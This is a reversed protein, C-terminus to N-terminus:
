CRGPSHKSRSRPTGKDRYIGDFDDRMPEGSREGNQVKDMDQYGRSSESAAEEYASETRRRTPLPEQEEESTPPELRERQVFCRDEPRSIRTPSIQPEVAASDSDSDNFDSQEDRSEYKSRGQSPLLSPEPSPPTSRDFSTAEFPTAASNRQAREYSETPEYPGPSSDPISAPLPSRQNIVFSRSPLPQPATEPIEYNHQQGRQILKTHGIKFFLSISPGTATYTTTTSTSNITNRTISCAVTKSYTDSETRRYHDAATYTTTTSKIDAPRM